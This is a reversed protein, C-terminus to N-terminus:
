GNALLNQDEEIHELIQKTLPAVLAQAEAKNPLNSMVDDFGEDVSTMAILAVQNIKALSLWSLGSDKLEEIYLEKIELEALEQIISVDSLADCHKKVGMWFLRANEFVTKIRGLSKITVELSTIAAMLDDKEVNLSGMRSVTEALSANAERQEKQLSARRDAAAAGAKEAAKRAENADNAVKLAVPSAAPVAIAVVVAGFSRLGSKDAARAAALEKQREEEVQSALEESLKALKAETAKAEALMAEVQKRQEVNVNNDKTAELLATKSQSCLGDAQNVLEQSINAMTMALEACKHVMKVSADFKGKQALQFALGHLKLSRVCAGVFSGSAVVSNKLLHQYDSLIAVISVSCPQDKSGAYAVQLLKGVLALDSMAQHVNVSHYYKSYGTVIESVGPTQLAVDIDQATRFGVSSPYPLIAM